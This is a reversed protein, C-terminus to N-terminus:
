PSGANQKDVQEGPDKQESEPQKQKESETIPGHLLRRTPGYGTAWRFMGYEAAKHVILEVRASRGPYTYHM